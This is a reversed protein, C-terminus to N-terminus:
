LQLMTEPVSGDPIVKALELPKILPVVLVFPVKSKEALTVSALPFVFECLRVRVIEAELPLKSPGASNGRTYM